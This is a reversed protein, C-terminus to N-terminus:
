LGPSPAPNGVRRLPPLFILKYIYMKASKYIVRRVFRPPRIRRRRRLFSLSLAPAFAATATIPHFLPGGVHTTATAPHPSLFFPIGDEDGGGREEDCVGEKGGGGSMNEASPYFSLRLSKLVGAGSFPRPSIGGSDEKLRRCHPAPGRHGQFGGKRRRREFYSFCRSLFLVKNYLIGERRGQGHRRENGMPLFIFLPLLLLPLFRERRGEERENRSIASLWSM